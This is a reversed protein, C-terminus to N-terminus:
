YPGSAVWNPPRKEPTNLDADTVNLFKLLDPWHKELLAQYRKGYEPATLEGRLYSQFLDVWDRLSPQHKFFGRAVADGPNGPKEYNGIFKLRQLKASVESPLEVGKVIPPGSIGPSQLNNPDLRNKTFVSMGEPSTWYMVFDMELDNQAREKKVVNLYGATLENARARGKVHKGEITAFNFTGYDFLKAAREETSPTPTPAGQPAVYRYQGQALRRVDREFAALFGGTVMFMASKQTLFLPYADPTGMWGPQTFGQPGMLQGFADIYEAWGDTDFRIEKDRLAKLHRAANVSVRSPDDNRPDNPDYGWKDDVGDRWAWDGKQARILNLQDRTYQDAASRVIWAPGNGGTWIRDATGAMAVPVYGKAKIKRCWDLMQAWTPQDPVDTIGAEQFIRSNYVWFTKATEYPTIYMEGTAPDRTLELAWEEFTDQWRRNTYPNTRSLYPAQNLIKGGVIFDRTQVFNIISIQPTGAAFQAKLWQILEDNNTAKYEFRVKVGPNLKMYADALAQHSQQDANNVVAVVEGSKEKTAPAAAAPTAAPKSEAPATTGAAAPKTAEAAPKTAETPKAPATPEATPKSPAPTPAAAPAATPSPPAAACAALLPGAALATLGALFARRGTRVSAGIEREM